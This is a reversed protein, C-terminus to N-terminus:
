RLNGYQDFWLAEVPKRSVQLDGFWSSALDPNFQREKNCKKCRGLNAQNLVWHHVCEPNM